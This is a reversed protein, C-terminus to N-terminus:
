RGGSGACVTANFGWNTPIGASSATASPALTLAIYDVRRSNACTGLVVQADLYPTPYVGTRNDGFFSSGLSYNWYVNIRGDALINAVMGKYNRTQGVFYMTWPQGGQNQITVCSGGSFVQGSPCSGPVFLADVSGILRSNSPSHADLCRPYHPSRQGSAIEARFDNVCPPFPVSQASASGAPVFLLLSSIAIATVCALLTNKFVSMALELLLLSHIRFLHAHSARIVPPKPEPMPAPNLPLQDDIVLLGTLDRPLNKL